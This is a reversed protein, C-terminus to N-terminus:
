RDALGSPVPEICAAASARSIRLESLLSILDELAGGGSRAFLRLADALVGRKLSAKQGTGGLYPELTAQAM